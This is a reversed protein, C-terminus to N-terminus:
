NQPYHRFIFDTKYYPCRLYDLSREGFIAAGASSPHEGWFWLLSRKWNTIPEPMPGHRDSTRWTFLPQLARSWGASCTVSASLGQSRSARTVHGLPTPDWPM